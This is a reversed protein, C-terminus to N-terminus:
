TSRRRHATESSVWISGPSPAHVAVDSGYRARPRPAVEWQDQLEAVGANTIRTDYLGLDELTTLGVLHARGANTVQPNNLHVKVVEGNDNREVSAELEELAAVAKAAPAPPTNGTDLPTGPSSNELEAQSDQLASPSAARGSPSSDSGCGVMGMVLLCGLLRKM